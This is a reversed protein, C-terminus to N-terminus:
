NRWDASLYKAKSGIRTQTGSGDLNSILLYRGSATLPSFYLYRLDQPSFYANYGQRLVTSQGTSLNLLMVTDPCAILAQNTLNGADITQVCDVDSVATPSNPTATAARWIKGTSHYLVETGNPLWTAKFVQHPVNVTTSTMTATNLRKLLWDCSSMYLLTGDTPHYALSGVRGCVSMSATGTAVGNANYRVIKLLGSAAPSCCDLEEFAAEGGGPKLQLNHVVKRTPATYLQKITTGDPSALSVNRGVSYGIKPGIDAATAVSASSFLAAILLSKHAM